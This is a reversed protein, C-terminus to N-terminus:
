WRQLQHRRSQQQHHQMQPQKGQPAACRAAAAGSGVRRQRSSSLRGSSLGCRVPSRSSSIIASRCRASSHPLSRPDQGAAAESPLWRQLWGNQGASLGENPHSAVAQAFNGTGWRNHVRQYGGFAGEAVGSNGAKLVCLMRKCVLAIPPTARASCENRSFLGREGTAYQV